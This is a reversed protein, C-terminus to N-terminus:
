QGAATTTSGATSGNPKCAEASSPTATKLRSKPWKLHGSSTSVYGHKWSKLSLSLQVPPLSTGSTRCKTSALEAGGAPLGAMFTTSCPPMTCLAPQPLAPQPAARALIAGPRSTPGVGGASEDEANAACLTFRARSADDVNLICLLQSPAAAQRRSNSVGNTLRQRLRQFPRRRGALSM